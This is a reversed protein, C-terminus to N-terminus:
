PIDIIGPEPFLGGMGFYSEFEALFEQAAFQLREEAEAEIACQLLTTEQIDLFADVLPDNPSSRDLAERAQHYWPPLGEADQHLDAL